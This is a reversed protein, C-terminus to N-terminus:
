RTTGWKENMEKAVENNKKQTNPLWFSTKKQEKKEFIVLHPSFNPIPSLDVPHLPTIHAVRRERLVIVIQKTQM